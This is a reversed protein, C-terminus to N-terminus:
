VGLLVILCSCLACWTPDPNNWLRQSAPTIISHSLCTILLLFLCLASALPLCHSEPFLCFSLFTLTHHQSATRQFLTADGLFPGVKADAKSPWQNPSKKTQKSKHPLIDFVPGQAHYAHHMEVVWYYLGRRGRNTKAGVADSSVAVQLLMTWQSLSWACCEPMELLVSCQNIAQTEM